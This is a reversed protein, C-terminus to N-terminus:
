VSPNLGGEVIFNSGTIWGARVADAGPTAVNGPTLPNARVGHPAVETALAQLRPVPPVPTAASRLLGPRLRRDPIPVSM